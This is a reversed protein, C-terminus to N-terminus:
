RTAAPMSRSRMNNLKQQDSATKVADIQVENRNWGTIEVDGNVNDLPFAAM